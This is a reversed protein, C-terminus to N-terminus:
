TCYRKLYFVSQLDNKRQWERQTETMSLPMPHLLDYFEIKGRGEEDSGRFSSDMFITLECDKMSEVFDAISVVAWVEEDKFILRACYSGPMLPYYSEKVIFKGMQFLVEMSYPRGLAKAARMTCGKHLLTKIYSSSVLKGNIAISNIISCSAGHLKAKESLLSPDGLRNRGFHFNYGCLVHVAKTAAFLLDCFEEAGMKALNEDFSVKYVVEIGMDELIAIKDEFTTLLTVPEKSFFERPHPDFTLVAPFTKLDKALLIASKLLEQHASHVGDFNGIAIVGGYLEKPINKLDSVITIPM